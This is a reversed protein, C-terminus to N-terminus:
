PELQRGSVILEEPFCEDADVSLMIPGTVSGNVIQTLSEIGDPARNTILGRCTALSGFQDVM